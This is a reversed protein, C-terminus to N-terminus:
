YLEATLVHCKAHEFLRVSRKHLYWHCVTYIFYPIQRILQYFKEVKNLYIKNKKNMTERNEKKTEHNEEYKNIKNKKNKKKMNEKQKQIKRMNTKRM